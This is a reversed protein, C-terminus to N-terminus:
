PRRGIMRPHIKEAACDDCWVWFLCADGEGSFAMLPVPTTEPDIEESCLSCVHPEENAQRDYGLGEHWTSETCLTM